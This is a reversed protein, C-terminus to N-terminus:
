IESDNELYKIMADKLRYKTNKAYNRIKNDIPELKGFGKFMFKGINERAMEFLAKYYAEIMISIDARDEEPFKKVFEDIQERLKEIAM